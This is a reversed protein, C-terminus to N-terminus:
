SKTKIRMVAFYHGWKCADTNWVPLLKGQDIQAKVDPFCYSEQFNYRISLM